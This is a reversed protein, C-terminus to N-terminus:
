KYDFTEVGVFSKSSDVAGDQVFGNNSSSQNCCLPLVLGPHFIRAPNGYGLTALLHLCSGKSKWLVDKKAKLSKINLLVGGEGSAAELALLKAM